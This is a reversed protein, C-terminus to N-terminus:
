VRFIGQEGQAEPESNLAATAVTAESCLLSKTKQQTLRQAVIERPYNLSFALTGGQFHCRRPAGREVGGTIPLTGANERWSGTQMDGPHHRSAENEALLPHLAVGPSDPSRDRLEIGPVELGAGSDGGCLRTPALKNNPMPNRPGREMDLGLPVRLISSV